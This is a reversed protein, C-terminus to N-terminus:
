DSRGKDKWHMLSLILGWLSIANHRHLPIQWDSEGVLGVAAPWRTPSQSRWGKWIQIQNFKGRKERREETEPM